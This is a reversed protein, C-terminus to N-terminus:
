PPPTITLDYISVVTGNYTGLGAWIWYTSGATVPFSVTNTPWQGNQNDCGLQTGTCTASRVYLTSPWFDPVMTAVATGSRPAVWRHVKDAGTGGCTGSNTSTGNVGSKILGGAPAFDIPSSCTGDPPSMRLVYNGAASGGGDIVIFYTTGAVANFTM